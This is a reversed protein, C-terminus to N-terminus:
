VEQLVRPSPAVPRGGDTDRLYRSLGLLSGLVGAGAGFVLFLVGWRYFFADPLSFNFLRITEQLGDLSRAATWVAVVSLFGGMLGELLGELLFPVRIFWNSAGVLKMIAVEDRRAHIAMFITTAILVVASFGFVLAAGLGFVNVVRRLDDLADIQAGPSRVEYVVPQARLRFQIDQYTAIDHLEIRISAPLVAPNVTEILDPRDAFLQEFEEFAQQKDFYSAQKVEEWGQVVSLMELHANESVGPTSEDKLFAIVHVGEQWARANLTLIEKVVLAGFAIALSLFVALVAGSVVLANRRLNQLAERVLFSLRNM